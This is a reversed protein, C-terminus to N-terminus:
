VNDLLGLLLCGVGVFFVAAAGAVWMPVGSQQRQWVMWVLAAPVVVVGALLSNRWEKWLMPRDAQNQRRRKTIRAMAFGVPILCVLAIIRDYSSLWAGVGIVLGCVAILVHLPVDEAAYPKDFRGARRIVSLDSELREVDSQQM